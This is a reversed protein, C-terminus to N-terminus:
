GHLVRRRPRGYWARSREQGQHKGAGHKTSCMRSGSVPSVNTGRAPGCSVAGSPRLRWDFPQFSQPLEFRWTLAPLRTTGGRLLDSTDVGCVLPMRGSPLCEGAHWTNNAIGSSARTGLDVPLVNGTLSVAHRRQFLLKPSRREMRKQVVLEKI